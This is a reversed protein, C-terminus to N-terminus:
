KKMSSASQKKSVELDGLELLDSKALDEIFKITNDIYRRPNCSVTEYFENLVATILKVRDNKDIAIKDRTLFCYYDIFFHNIAGCKLPTKHFKYLGDILFLEIRENKKIYKDISNHCVIGLFDVDEEVLYADIIPQGFYIQKSKNMSVMGHSVGGKMAMKNKIAYIFIEMISMTFLEFNATSDNKSFIIISDSFSVIHIDADKFLEKFPTKQSATEFLKRYESLENLENYIIEHSHRMVKDKFGLLDFFAVFRNDKIKWNTKRISDKEGM